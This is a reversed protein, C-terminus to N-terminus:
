KEDKRRRILFDEKKKKAIELRTSKERARYEQERKEDLEQWTVSNECIYEKCIRALKWGDELRRAM